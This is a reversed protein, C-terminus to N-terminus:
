QSGLTELTGRFEASRSEEGITVTAGLIVQAAKGVTEPIAIDYLLVFAGSVSGIIGATAQIMSRPETVDVIEGASFLAFDRLTGGNEHHDINTSVVYTKFGEFLTSSNPNVAKLADDFVATDNPDTVTLIVLAGREVERVSKLVDAAEVIAGFIAASSMDPTRAELVNIVNVLEDKKASLDAVRQYGREVGGVAYITLQDRSRLANVLDIAADFRIGEPDLMKAEASTDLLLALTQPGGLVDGDTARTNPLRATAPTPRLSGTVNTGDLTIQDIAVMGYDLGGGWCLVPDNRSAPCIGRRDVGFPSLRVGVTGTSRPRLQTFPFLGVVDLGAFSSDPVRVSHERSRGGDFEYIQFVLEDDGRAPFSLEFQGADDTVVSRRLRPDAGGIARQGRNEIQILSLAPLQNPRGRVTIRGAADPPIIEVANDPFDVNRAAHHACQENRECAFVAPIDGTCVPNPESAPVCKGRAAGPGKCCYHEDAFTRLPPVQIFAPSGRVEAEKAKAASIELVDSSGAAVEFAFSGDPAAPFVDRAISPHPAVYVHSAGSPLAGALGRGRVLGDIPFFVVIKSPDPAPLANAPTDGACGAAALIAAISLAREISM